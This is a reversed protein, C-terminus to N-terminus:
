KVSIWCKESCFWVEEFDQTKPLKEFPIGFIEGGCRFCEGDAEIDDAFADVGKDMDRQGAKADWIFFKEILKNTKEDM